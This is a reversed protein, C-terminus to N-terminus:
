FIGDYLTNLVDFLNDFVCRVMWRRHSWYCCIYRYGLGSVYQLVIKYDFFTMKDSLRITAVDSPMPLWDDVRFSEFRKPNLMEFFDLSSMSRGQRCGTGVMKVFESDITKMENCRKVHFM